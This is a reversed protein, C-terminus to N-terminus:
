IVRKVYTGKVVNWYGHLVLYLSKYQWKPRTVRSWEYTSENGCYPCIAKGFRAPKDIQKGVMADEYSENSYDTWNLKYSINCKGCRCNAYTKNNKYYIPPEDMKRDLWERFGEPEEPIIQEMKEITM